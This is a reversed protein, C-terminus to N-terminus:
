VSRGAWALNKRELFHNCRNMTWLVYHYIYLCLTNTICSCFIVLAGMSRNQPQIISESEM